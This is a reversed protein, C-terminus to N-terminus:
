CMAKHFMHTAYLHLQVCVPSQCTDASTSIHTQAFVSRLDAVFWTGNNIGDSSRFVKTMSVGRFVKAVSVGRFVKAVSVGRFVKTIGVGSSFNLALM